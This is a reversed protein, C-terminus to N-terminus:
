DDDDDESLWGIPLIPRGPPLAKAQQLRRNMEAVNNAMESQRLAEESPEKDSEVEPPEIRFSFTYQREIRSAISKVTSELAVHFDGGRGAQQVERYIGKVQDLLTSIENAMHDSEDQDLSEVSTKSPVNIAGMKEKLERFEVLKEFSFRLATVIYSVVNVVEPIAAVLITFDSSSITRIEFNDASGTALESLTKFERDIARVHKGFVDLGDAMERPILIGIEGEGPELEEAGIEFQNFANILNNLGGLFTNLQEWLEELHSRITEPSAEHQLFSEEIREALELGFLEGGGIESVTQRKFAAWGNFESENLSQILEGRANSADTQHQPEQPQTVRNQLHDLLTRLLRLSRDDESVDRLESVVSHLQEANMPHFGGQKNNVPNYM